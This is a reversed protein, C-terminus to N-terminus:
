VRLILTSFPSDDNLKVLCLLKLPLVARILNMGLLIFLM